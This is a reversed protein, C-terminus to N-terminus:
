KEEPYALGWTQRIETMISMVDSTYDLHMENKIGSVAQEMDFIEYKLANDTQGCEITEQRNDATYTIVAKEARPYEYIEIYGKDFAIMGRKPQKAHLTLAVTAMEGVPNMLLIGAQEDVGSPAMKVQSVIQNPAASMFWRIFSLAYVGIDLLAGGALSPNFFRNSMDYEKYSGFNMQIMRLKGLQGSIMIEYLKKYLPMHYITMAEALILNQEEALQRAHELEKSNLTISKECLIHKGHRLAKDLYQSHTNHPTSIYIIDVNKDEFIDEINEYVKSINYKKAFDVAKSYTRNAVGYLTRGEQQMASALQNAIVGCGLTVWNYTKM